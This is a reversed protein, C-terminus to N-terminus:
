SPEGASALKNAVIEAHMWHEDTQVHNARVWKAVSQQFDEYRFASALRVVVGENKTTDLKECMNKLLAEDYIGRYLVPVSQVGLLALMEQTEDWSLARNTEDWVSFAMFYSPLDNYAISHRAFLNEGCIRWGEPIDHAFTAHYAKLWDRSPHSRGDPSRAHFGDTYLSSCEGDVKLTGVVEKGEFHATSRLVKDGSTRGRSYPLHLTKPYRYKM